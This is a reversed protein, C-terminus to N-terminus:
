IKRGRIKSYEGESVMNHYILWCESMVCIPNLKGCFKKINKM